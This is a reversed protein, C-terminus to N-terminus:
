LRGQIGEYSQKKYPGKLEVALRKIGLHLRQRLGIAAVLLDRIRGLEEFSYRLPEPNRRNWPM